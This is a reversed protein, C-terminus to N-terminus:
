SSHAASSASARSSGGCSSSGPELLSDVGFGILAISGAAIGAGLAIAFEAVHWANGIWTLTKARRVLRPLAVDAM